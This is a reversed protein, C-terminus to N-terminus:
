ENTFISGITITSGIFHSQNNDVTDGLEEIKNITSQWQIEGTDGKNSVGTTKGKPDHNRTLGCRRSLSVVQYDSPICSPLNFNFVVDPSLDQIAEM